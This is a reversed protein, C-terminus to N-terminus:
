KRNGKRTAPRSSFIVRGALVDKLGDIIKQAARKKRLPKSKRTMAFYRRPRLLWRSQKAAHPNETGSIRCSADVEVGYM